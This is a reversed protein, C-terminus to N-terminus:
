SKEKVIEWALDPEFGKSILFSAIKHKKIFPNPEKLSSSKEIALSELVQMYDNDDIEAMGMKICYPSLNRRKLEQLIKNRGWRKIRFKGGAFSKAFREENIYNEVILKAVLEEVEASSLGLNYLKEKAEQQTREQYACFHCAKQYAETISLKEKEKKIKSNDKFSTSSRKIM